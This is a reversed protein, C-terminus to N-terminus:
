EIEDEDDDEWFKLKEFDGEETLAGTAAGGAAGIAAGTGVGLDTVAGTAAGVGAGIGAGSLARDSESTGCGALLLSVGMITATRFITM